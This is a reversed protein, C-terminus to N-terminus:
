IYLMKGDGLEIVNVVIGFVISKIAHNEFIRLFTFFTFFDQGFGRLLLNPLFKYGFRRLWSVIISFFLKLFEFSLFRSEFAVSM